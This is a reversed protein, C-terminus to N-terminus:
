DGLKGVAQLQEVEVLMGAGVQGLQDLGYPCFLALSLPSAVSVVVSEAGGDLRIFEYM